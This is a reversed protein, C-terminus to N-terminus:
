FTSPFYRQLLPFNIVFCRRFEVGFCESSDNLVRVPLACLYANTQNISSSESIQVSLTIRNVSVLDVKQIQIVEEHAQATSILYANQFLHGLLAAAIV